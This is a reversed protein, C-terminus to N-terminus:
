LGNGRLAQDIAIEVGHPLDDEIISEAALYNRQPTGRVGGPSDEVIGLGATGRRNLNPGLDTSFNADVPDYDISAPYSGSYRHGRAKEQWARKGKLASIGVAKKILPLADAAANTLDIEFQHLEDFGSM